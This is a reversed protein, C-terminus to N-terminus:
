PPSETFSDFEFWTCCESLTYGFVGGQSARGYRYETIFGRDQDFNVVLPAGLVGIGALGAEVRMFMAQITLDEYSCGQAAWGDQSVEVLPSSPVLPNERARVQSLKGERVTLEADVFCALPIAGKVHIQYSAPASAEWRKRARPLEWRIRAGAAADSVLAVPDYLIGLLLICLVSGGIM